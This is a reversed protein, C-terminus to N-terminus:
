SFPVFEIEEASKKAQKEGDAFVAVFYKPADSGMLIKWSRFCTKEAQESAVKQLQAEFIEENGPTIGFLYFSIHSYATLAEKGKPVSSCEPLYADLSRVLFNLTSSYLARVDSNAPDASELFNGLGRFNKVCIFFVYQLLDDEQAAFTLFTKGSADLLEKKSKEFVEKKGFKVFDQEVVWLEEGHGIGMLFLGSLIGLLSGVRM